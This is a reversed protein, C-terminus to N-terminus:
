RKSVDFFVKCSLSTNPLSINDLKSLEAVIEEATMKVVGEGEIKGAPGQPGQPGQPGDLGNNGQAGRKGEEGKPGQFGQPGVDGKPGQPGDLGRLGMPGTAGQPGPIGKNKCSIILAAVGAILAMIVLVLSLVNM